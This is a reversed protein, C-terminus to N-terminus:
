RDGGEPDAAALLATRAAPGDVRAICRFHRQLRWVDVGVDDEVGVDIPKQFGPLAAALADRDTASLASVYGNLLASRAETM